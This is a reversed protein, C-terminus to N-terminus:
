GQNSYLVHRRCFAFMNSHVFGEDLCLPSSVPTPPETDHMGDQTGAEFLHTVTTSGKLGMLKQSPLLLLM